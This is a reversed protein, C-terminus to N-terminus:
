GGVPVCCQLKNEKKCDSTVTSVPQQANPCDGPYVECSGGRGRCSEASFVNGFVKGGFVAYLGLLLLALVLAIIVFEVTGIGRKALM